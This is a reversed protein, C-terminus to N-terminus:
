KNFHKRAHKALVGKRTTLFTCHPCTYIPTEIFQPHKKLTHGDLFKKNTFVVNCHPCKLLSDSEPHELMHSVLHRKSVTKFTCHKCGYLKNTVSGVLESHQKSIHEDLDDKETFSGNCHPCFILSDNGSEPHQLKHRSMLYKSVTKYVCSPCEYIKHSISDVFEPHNKIIHSNLTETKKFTEECYKCKVLKYNGTHKMMHKKLCTGYSSTFDCYTCHHIKRAHKESIHSNLDGKSKFSEICYSCSQLKSHTLIHEILVKKWLTQYSCHMCHLIQSTSSVSESHDPHKRLIHNNLSKMIKFTTNCHVCTPCIKKRVPVENNKDSVQSSHTSMHRTLRNKKTTKFECSTCCHIKHYVTSIFEPHKKIIHESLNQLDKFTANCHCCTTLMNRGVKKTPHQLMHKNLDLKMTTQFKCHPCKFIESSITIAFKPHKKLIHADLTEKNVFASRCHSCMNLTDDVSSEKHQLMHRALQYKGITKYTCYKCEYVKQSLSSIHEPHKQIIHSNLVQNTKFTEDCYECKILKYNGTHKLMHRELSCKYTTKFKCNTCQHIKHCHKEVIHNDLNRKSEFTMNCHVCTHLNYSSESANRNANRGSKKQKEASNLLTDANPNTFSGSHNEIKILLEHSINESEYKINHLDIEQKIKVGEAYM